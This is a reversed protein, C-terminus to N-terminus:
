VSVMERNLDFFKKDDEMGEYTKGTIEHAGLKGLMAADIMLGAVGQVVYKGDTSFIPYGDLTEELQGHWRKAVKVDSLQPFRDRFIQEVQAAGSALGFDKGASIADELSNYTYGLLISNDRTVIGWMYEDDSENDWFLRTGKLTGMQKDTLRETAIVYYVESGLKDDPIFGFQTTLASGTVVVREGDVKHGNVTSIKDGKKVVKSKEYIQVGHGELYAKLERCLKTPNVIHDTPDLMAFDYGALGFRGVDSSREATLSGEFYSKDFGGKHRAKVEKKLFDYDEATWGLQVSGVKEYDCEFGNSNIADDIVSSGALTSQWRRKAEDKGYDELLTQYTKESCNVLLGTNRGGAKGVLDGDIIAIDKGSVGNKLLHYATFLGSFSGGLVVIPANIDKGVTQYPQKNLGPTWITNAYPLLQM